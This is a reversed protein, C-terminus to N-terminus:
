PMFCEGTSQVAPNTWSWYCTVGRSGRECTGCFYPGRRMGICWNEGRVSPAICRAGFPPQTQAGVAPLRGACLTHAAQDDLDAVGNCNNDVGDCIEAAGPNRAANDDDCDPGAACGVGYTDRDRDTCGADPPPADAPAADAADVAAPRDEAPPRDEPAPGADAPPADVAPADALQGADACVCAALRGDAGCTQVGTAGPCACSSTAGPTCDRTALAPDVSCAVLALLLAVLRM